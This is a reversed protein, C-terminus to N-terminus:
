GHTTGEQSEPHGEDTGDAAAVAVRAARLVHGRYRYGRRIVELVEDAAAGPPAPRVDVVHHTAPDAREGVRGLVDLGEDAVASELQRAVLEVSRHYAAPDAPAGAALVRDLADLADACVLLLREAHARHAADRAALAKTGEYAAVAAAATPNRDPPTM